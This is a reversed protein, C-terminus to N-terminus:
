EPHRVRHVGGNRLDLAEISVIVRAAVEVSPQHQSQVFRRAVLLELREVVLEAPEERRTADLAGLGVSLLVGTEGVQRTEAQM